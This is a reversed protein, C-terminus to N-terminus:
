QKKVAFDDFCIEVFFSGASTEFPLLIVPAKSKHSIMHGKGVIISPTALNFKYGKESLIKKAGGTVMNTIEGVMDAVTEDVKDLEEGLMRSAIDIIAKETFTIAISGKTQEGALGIVGSVDGQGVNDRKIVPKGVKAETQAMTALVNVISVLFPNIIDARM